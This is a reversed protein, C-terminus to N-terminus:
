DWVGLKDKEGKREKSYWTQKRYRQTQKRKIFLNTQIKKLNWTLSMM